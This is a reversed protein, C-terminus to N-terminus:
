EFRLKIGDLAIGQLATSWTEGATVPMARTLTGTTVIEGAALPPNVPDRALLGVFHRLASVPGDLVNTSRGRDIVKNDRLLDIAFNPLARQWQAADSGIPHRLGILLADHLGNAAITDPASFPAIQRGSGLTTLVEDAIADITMGHDRPQAAIRLETWREVRTYEQPAIAQPVRM